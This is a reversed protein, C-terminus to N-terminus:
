AMSGHYRTERAHVGTTPLVWRMACGPRGLSWRPEAYIAETSEPKSGQQENPARSFRWHREFRALNAGPDLLLGGSEPSAEIRTKRSIWVERSLDHHAEIDIFVAHDDRRGFIRDFVRNGIMDDLLGRQKEVPLNRLTNERVEPGHRKGRATPRLM